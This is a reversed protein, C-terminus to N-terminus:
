TTSPSPSNTHPRAPRAWWKPRCRSSRRRFRGQYIWKDDVPINAFVSAPLSFNEALIEPPTHAIWDTLLLTNFESANGADFAITFETGSPGLGQLSHPLGAPFYWLDNVGVDRVYPRGEWDLVTIRCKGDTVIAWEAQQHWHLERVGGASLRMNVGSITDSIAFDGQTVQRAWGGAQIRRHANNFSAWIMKMGGVDTPPPNTFSPFQSALAPNQPGPDSLANPNANIAGEAPRDPNGFVGGGSATQAAAAGAAAAGGLATAALVSRRSLDKM